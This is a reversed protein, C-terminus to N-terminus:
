NDGKILAPASVTKAKDSVAVVHGQTRILLIGESIAPTAMCVEGMSNTALLKFAPGVQVVYVDGDESALYIKGDAVVPSATFASRGTGLREEYVKKGTKAEYCVLIGNWRCNYLYDGYVVPTQMYSGGRRDVWAVHQNSTEEGQLSIDGTASTKIAYVPAIRGHANTIYVLGHAVVPTPVPIDGGGNLRWIEKGTKIDYGGTHKYGNVILQTRGGETHVTPTGWTPVDARSTRWVENGNNVDFAALFSDKQVDALVIVKGDHIIPSSGYEWQATPMMYYGADLVGLDKKWVLNGAMDYCYLGESGFSAVVHKGDTAMTANAHTAKTHRKVKPVGKFATKEWMVKGTKKNLCLVKYTHETDDQVPAIDGYLGPKLSSDAKGSIATTLYIRDGWVIPSSNGLGAVATKWLVNESKEVNWAVPTKFGEAVGTANAGRFSPWNPDAAFATASVCVLLVCALPRVM